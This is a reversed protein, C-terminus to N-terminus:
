DGVKEVYGAQILDYLRNLRVEGYKCSSDFQYPFVLRYEDIMFEYDDTYIFDDDDKKFGLEKLDIEDKIKLIVAV